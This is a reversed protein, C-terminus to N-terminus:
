RLGKMKRGFNNALSQIIKRGIQNEETSFLSRARTGSVPLFEISSSENKRTFQVFQYEPEFGTGNM